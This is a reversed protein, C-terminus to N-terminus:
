RSRLTLGYLAVMQRSVCPNLVLATVAKMVLIPSQHTSTEEETKTDWDGAFGQAQSPNTEKLIAGYERQRNDIVGAKSASYPLIRVPKEAAARM